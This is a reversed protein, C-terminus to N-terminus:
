NEYIFMKTKCHPCCAAANNVTMGCLMCKKTLYDPFDASHKKKKKYTAILIATNLTFIMLAILIVLFIKLFSVESLIFYVLDPYNLLVM